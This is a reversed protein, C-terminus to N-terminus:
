FLTAYESDNEYREFLREAWDRVAPSESVVFQQPFGRGDHAALGVADEFVFLEFPCDEHIEISVDGESAANRSLGGYEEFLVEVAQPDFVAEVAAGDLVADHIERLYFPSVVGSLLRLSRSSRIRDRIAAEVRHPHREDPSVVAADALAALPLDVDRLDAADLFPRLECATETRDRFRVVEDAVLRGSRTLEFAKGEKRLVGEDALRETARHVTSRSADLDRELDGATRPEERLADLLEVRKVLSVLPCDGM